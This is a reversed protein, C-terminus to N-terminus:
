RANQEILDVTAFFPYPDALYPARFPDFREGLSKAATYATTSM